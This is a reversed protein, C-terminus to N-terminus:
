EWGKDDDSDGAMTFDDEDEEDMADGLAEDSVGVDKDEKEEEDENRKRDDGKAM